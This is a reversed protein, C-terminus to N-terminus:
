AEHKKQSRRFFLMCLIYGALMVVAMVGALILADTTVSDYQVALSRSAEQIMPRIGSVAALAAAVAVVIAAAGLAAGIHKLCGSIQRSELLAILGALLASLALAAWPIRIFFTLLNVLDVRKGAERMGLNLTEQRMPLVIRVVSQSVSDCITEAQAEPHESQNVLPDDALVQQLERTDMKPQQGPMGDALVSSWWLSAQANLDTLVDDSIVGIVPEPTFGYLAALVTIKERIMEKEAAIVRASVKAGQDGMAPAITRRGIYSVCFLVLSGTLLFALLWALIKKM